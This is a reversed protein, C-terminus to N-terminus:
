RKDPEYLEKPYLVKDLFLGQPYATKGAADRSRSEIIAKFDDANIKASGVDLLTGVIARVMNRLFRNAEIRFVLQEGEARWEATFVECIHHKVDSNSRAFSSFDQKGLLHASAENLLDIDIRSVHFVSYANLFPNKRFHLYYSYGRRFASFRAHLRDSVERCSYIAIDRPLVANLKYVFQDEPLMLGADTDFHAYYMRAHVGTDTRGCGVVGRHDPVFISLAAEINQQVTKVEPQLQWGCYDTGDYALHLLYRAM